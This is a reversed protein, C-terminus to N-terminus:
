STRVIRSVVPRPHGGSGRRIIVPGAMEDM